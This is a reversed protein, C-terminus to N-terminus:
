FAEMWGQMPLIALVENRGSRPASAGRLLLPRGLTAGKPMRLPQIGRSRGPTQSSGRRSATCSGLVRTCSQGPAAWRRFAALWTQWAVCAMGMGGLSEPISGM